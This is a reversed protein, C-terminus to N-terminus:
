ESPRARWLKWMRWLLWWVASNILPNLGILTRFWEWQGTEYAIMAPAAFVWLWVRHSGGGPYDLVMLCVACGLVAFNIYLLLLFVRVDRWPSARKPDTEM